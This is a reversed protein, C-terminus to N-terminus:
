KELDIAHLRCLRCIRRRLSHINWFYVNKIYPADLFLVNSLLNDLGEFLHVTQCNEPKKCVNVRPPRPPPTIEKTNVWPVFNFFFFFKGDADESM